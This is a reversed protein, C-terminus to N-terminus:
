KTKTRLKRSVSATFNLLLLFFMWYIGLCSAGEKSLHSFLSPYGVAGERGFRASVNPVLTPVFVGMETVQLEADQLTM